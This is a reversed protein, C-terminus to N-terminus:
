LLQIKNNATFAVENKEFLMQLSKLINQENFNLIQVLEASTCLKEQLILKIKDELNLTKKPKQSECVSCNNCNQNYQQGFYNLIQKTKCVSKNSIYSIVSELKNNKAQNQLELNKAVWNITKDDERITLFTIKAENTTIKSQILGFDTWKKIFGLVSEETSNTKKAIKTTNIEILLDFIGPYLRLLSSIIPEEKTNLSCYRIVEKSPFIFQLQVKESYINSFQIINQRDLFQLANYTKTIPLKYQECFPNLNFVFEENIGENYAIQFYNCLKKYMDKLFVVDPLVSLFQHKAIEIDSNEYLLIGFGKEGNRGVRGVEQYYSELNEPLNVHIVTKVDPKNIGMGFANTAIIVQVKNQMWLDSNKAKETASLGGHYYTAKFGLLQLKDFYLYCSKRNRVYIIASQPNKHLIQIIKQWKDQTEILFFGVNKREFSQKFIKPEQLSLLSVIEAEVKPTATATLAVFPQTKFINKLNKIELFSPRFDHGWQSVCHAEDIVIMSIPIESLRTLFWDQLLREPSLYIFKYNGFLSNDLIANLETFNKNGTVAIAKIDKVQLQNIQDNILAVLPSIVLCIGDLMLAPVQFCISKGGGTPLLVFTDNKNLIAEVIELQLPRFQEYNWYKHLVQQPTM